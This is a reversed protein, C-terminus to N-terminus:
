TAGKGNAIMYTQIRARIKEHEKVTFYRGALEVAIQAQSYSGVSGTGDNKGCLFINGPPMASAETATGGVGNIWHGHTAGTRTLIKFGLAYTLAIADFNLSNIWSRNFATGNYGYMSLNGNTVNGTGAMVAGIVDGKRYYIGYSGNNQTYKEGETAPAYHTDIIGNGTGKFGELATFVPPAVGELTGHHANKALNKLSSESTENGLIRFVDFDEALTTSALDEKLGSILEDLLQLQGDSLPTALGTVYTELEDNVITYGGAKRGGIRLGIGIRIGM